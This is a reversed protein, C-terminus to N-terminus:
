PLPSTQGRQIFVVVPSGGCGRWVWRGGSCVSFSTHHPHLSLHFGGWNQWLGQRCHSALFFSGKHYYTSNFPLCYSRSSSIKAMFPIDTSTEVTRCGCLCLRSAAVWSKTWSVSARRPARRHGRSDWQSSHVASCGTIGTSKLWKSGRLLPAALFLKWLLTKNTRQGVFENSLRCTSKLFVFVAASHTHCLCSASQTCPQKGSHLTCGLLDTVPARHKDFWTM